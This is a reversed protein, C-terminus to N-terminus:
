SKKSRYVQIPLGAADFQIEIMQMGAKQAVRQSALNAPDITAIVEHMSLEEHAYGLLSQVLESALGKGWCTRKLAYKIEPMEQGGPHVLGCFGVISDDLRDVAAFMGYGRNVYNELTVAIWRHCDKEALPQGDDVWRAAIPDGYVAMMDDFDAATIRRLKLRSTEFLCYSV